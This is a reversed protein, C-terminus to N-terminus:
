YFYKKRNWPKGIVLVNFCHRGKVEKEFTGEKINPMSIQNGMENFYCAKLFLTNFLSIFDNRSCMLIELIRSDFEKEEEQIYDHLVKKTIDKNTTIFIIFTHYIILKESFYNIVNKANELSDGIFCVIIDNNANNKYDIEIKKFILNLNRTEIGEEFFQFKWGYSYTYEGYDGKNKYSSKTNDDFLSQVYIKNFKSGWVLINMPLDKKIIINDDKM